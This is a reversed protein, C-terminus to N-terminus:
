KINEDFFIYLNLVIKFNQVFNFSKVLFLKKSKIWSIFFLIQLKEVLIIEVIKNEVGKKGWQM